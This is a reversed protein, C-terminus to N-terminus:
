TNPFLAQVIDVLKRGDPTTANPHADLLTVWCEKAGQLDQLNYYLLLGKNYMAVPHTPAIQLAKNYNELSEQYKGDARLMTAYDTLVSPSPNDKSLLLAKEYAFIAKQVENRDYYANALAVWNTRDEPNKESREELIRLDKLSIIDSPTADNTLFHKKYLIFGGASVVGLFLIVCLIFTSKKTKHVDANKMSQESM